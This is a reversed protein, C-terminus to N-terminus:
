LGGVFTSVLLGIAADWDTTDGGFLSRLGMVITSVLGLIALVTMYLRVVIWGEVWVLGANLSQLGRARM